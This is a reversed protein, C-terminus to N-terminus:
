NDGGDRSGYYESGRTFGFDSSSNRLEEQPLEDQGTALITQVMKFNPSSTYTLARSCATELRHITYKDSLKLLAMCTRYGQQEIKRSEFIANVVVLTNKGISRAWSRFREANWQSYERHSPPMHETLTSYQGSNGHKRVHSAIREGLVFVEVTRSTIRVDVQKKIYVHPVSYLMKEVSVHYNYAVTCSKWESLEYPKNPLPILLEGEEETFISFRSGNRKQFPKDNLEQLKGSISENLERLSFFKWNRLAAIIWTSVFGVAGEVTAKDKPKRVRAPLIATGYHEAMEQYAANLIIDDKTRKTVGTKLNDPILIRTAGGYHRYANIHASVWNAQNRSSFAEVYAYGSYSLVSVFIYVSFTEGTINDTIQMTQGAWDVEMQEGPKRELLMTAKTRMTYSRYRSCFTSYMYPIEDNQRCMTCYENWLLSLTVGSKAMEKHVQEYDPEKYGKNKEDQSGSDHILKTLRENTYESALPLEIGQERVFVIARQVTSKGCGSSAAISRQSLGQSYLRLIERYNTM